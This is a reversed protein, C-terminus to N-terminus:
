TYYIVKPSHPSFTDNGNQTNIDFVNFEKGSCTDDIVHVLLVYYYEAHHRMEDTDYGKSKLREVLETRSILENTMIKGLVPELVYCNNEAIQNKYFRFYAAKFVDKHHSYVNNDKIAYFYFLFEAGKKLLNNNKLYYYYDNESDARIYGLVCLENEMGETGNYYQKKSIVEDKKEGASVVSPERMVIETYYKMRNLRSNYAVNAEILKIIFTELELEGQVEISPKIAFAGIGPLIEDYLRFSAAQAQSSDNAGPYLIYSGITRRIADNYTHMKLLDGRKYTNVVSDSKDETIETEDELIDSSKGILVSIDEIRYKADFHVYRVAGSKIAEEEGNYRGHMFSDPYLAITYDPRFPRSYSGEYKTMQFETRSFTRNYYLNIKTKYKDIVFSQCSKKGQELSVTIGDDMILFPNERCVIMKCGDISKITKFLKFFLWYEYLLAVNKSEGEYVADKGKWDLQLAFDIMSYAYFIQSYGQRKQLVQNNQPMIELVGVENLFEDMLIKELMAHIAGAERICEAQKIQQNSALKNMLLICVSDFKQLAFKVFRNAPTDFSDYKKTISVEQPLYGQLGEGNSGNKGWRKSHLFPNTYFKKSIRGAGFPKLEDECVLIHDPNRKIAEFLGLINQSYCFQRLFIFQELITRQESETQSYVNSTAGSFELLLESCIQGLAETLCIYDDEYDIKDPVVEFHLSHNEEGCQVIIRSRGLYNIFQFSVSDKDRDCKLFKNEENQFHILNAANGEDCETKIIYRRTEVIRLVFEGDLGQEIFISEKQSVSEKFHYTFYQEGLASIKEDDWNISNYTGVLYLKVKCKDNVKFCIAAIM